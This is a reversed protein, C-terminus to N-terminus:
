FFFSVPCGSEKFTSSIFCFSFIYEPVVGIQYIKWFVEQDDFYPPSFFHFYIYFQFLYCFCEKFIGYDCITFFKKFWWCWWSLSFVVWLFLSLIQLAYNIFSMYDLYLVSLVSCYFFVFLGIKFYAFSKFLCRELSSMCMTLLSMVFHQFVM